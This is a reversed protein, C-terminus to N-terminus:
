IRRAVFEDCHSGFLGRVAVPRDFKRELEFGLRRLFAVVEDPNASEYPYGGLWDHVDTHFNMGRSSRYNRIYTAPNRGSVAIAGLFAGKYLSRVLVQTPRSARCYFRKEWRWFDCAPSRRYLAIALLGKDSVLAAARELARWMAGTHHLVGWSYVIDYLQEAQFSLIDATEVSSQTPPSASLLSRATNVSENDIDIGRVNKAGLQLAALMSLGSGCGVDLISAGVLEQNPFLKLLGRKAEEISGRDVTAAFERWNDGFGFREVTQTSRM